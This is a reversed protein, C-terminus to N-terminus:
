ECDEGKGAAANHVSLGATNQNVCPSFTLATATFTGKDSRFLINIGQPFSKEKSIDCSDGSNGSPVCNQEPMIVFSPTFEQDYESRFWYM